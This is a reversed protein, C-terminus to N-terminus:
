LDREHALRRKRDLIKWYRKTDKNNMRYLIDVQIDLSPDFEDDPIINNDNHKFWQHVIWKDRLHLVLDRTMTIWSVISHIILNM